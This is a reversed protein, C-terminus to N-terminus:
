VRDDRVMDLLTGQVKQKDKLRRYYRAEIDTGEIMMVLQSHKQGPRTIRANAQEFTDNSTIPAYWIITSAATLTLGHSMAAPQAVLVQPNRDKQFARFIRDREAKSVSGHICEVTYGEKELYEKLPGIVGVFPVFVISKSNSQEVTERVVEMRPTADMVLHDGDSNYAVGCNHVILQRMDSGMVVFRNRPGCNVLDYVPVADGPNVAIEGGGLQIQKPASRFDSKEVRAGSSSGYRDDEGSHHRHVQQDKELGQRDNAGYVGSPWCGDPLRVPERDFGKSESGGTCAKAQEDNVEKATAWGRTTLVRHDDTMLVGFCSTVVKDGMYLAGKQAVWETGDWVMHNSTVSQIPLWGDSTLVPTGYHLCAIQILKQAKVAENVATVEGTDIEAKLKTLMEKYAKSQQQTLPAQRVEYMCPPLDLCEDRHFRLAPQMVEKVTDLADDRSVWIFNTVQRMVRDKFKNFYPPVKEPVLLRCQAWADTPANPIPTGTLGWAWRPHQKNIVTNLVKFRDTSANRAAQSIEDVIVLDIDPREAMAEIFGNVKIGDHNILYIDYDHDALLKLRQERTGYLVAPELHPFHHFVEDAWTRELTSLPSVVIAKKLVGRARLYDYAWLTALTKGLGLDALNFARRYLTLFEAIQKQHEFPTFRGPWQYYFGVPSPADVGLNRLVQVVEIQHPVAVYKKGRYVVEKGQPIVTLLRQPDRLRLLIAKKEPLIIM